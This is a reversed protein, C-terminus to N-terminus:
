PLGVASRREGAGAGGPRALERWAAVSADVAARFRPDDHTLKAVLRAACGYDFTTSLPAAAPGASYIVRRDSLEREGAVHLLLQFATTFDHLRALAGRTSRPRAAPLPNAGIVLDAGMAEVLGVPLNDSVAGDVYISGGAITPAFIGPASVSARVGFGISGEAIVEPRLRGLNTAVPFLPIELQELRADGLDADVTYEAIASSLLMLPMGRAIAPGRAILRELGAIGAHCYYAGVLAGSSSGAILDIPVGARELELILAASAYGWAGAGGLALGVRRRTLARAWRGFSRQAADPLERYSQSAAHALAALDLRIRCWAPDVRAAPYPDGRGNLEAGRRRLDRAAGRAITAFWNRAPSCRGAATSALVLTRLIACGPRPPALATEADRTVHVIQTALRELRQLAGSEGAADLFVYRVQVRYRELQARVAAEARADHAEPLAALWVHRVGGVRREASAARPSIHLILTPDGFLTDIASALLGTLEGLPADLEPGARLLVVPAMAEGTM